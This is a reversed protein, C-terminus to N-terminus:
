NKRTFYILKQNWSYYFVMPALKSKRTDTTVTNMLSRTEMKIAKLPADQLRKYNQLRTIESDRIKAEILMDNRRCKAKGQSTTTNAIIGSSLRM